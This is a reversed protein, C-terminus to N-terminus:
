EDKNKFYEAASKKFERSSFLVKYDKCATKKRIDRVVSLCGEKTKGHVMCYLNYEWDPAKSRQYCHSVESFASMLNGAENIFKNPINWVAMANYRYGIKKHNIVASFKRLFGSIKKAKIWGLLEGEKIGLKLAMEKFPEAVLPIDRSILGIVAKDNKSLRKM